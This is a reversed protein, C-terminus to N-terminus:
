WSNLQEIYETSFSVIGQCSNLYSHHTDPTPILVRKNKETAEDSTDDNRKRKKKQLVSIREQRFKKYQPKINREGIPQYKRKTRAM